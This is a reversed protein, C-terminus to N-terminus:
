IHILSLSLETNDGMVAVQVAVEKINLLGAGLCEGSKVTYFAMNDKLKSLSTLPHVNETLERIRELNKNLDEITM